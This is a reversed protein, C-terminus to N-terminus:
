IPMKAVIAITLSIERSSSNRNGNIILEMDISFAKQKSNSTKQAKETPFGLWIATITIVNNSLYSQFGSTAKYGTSVHKFHATAMSFSNVNITKPVIVIPLYGEQEIAM